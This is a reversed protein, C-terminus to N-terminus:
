EFGLGAGRYFAVRSCLRAAVFLVTLDARSDLDLQGGCALIHQAGEASVVTKEGEGEKVESVPYGPRLGRMFLLGRPQLHLPGGEEWPARCHSM